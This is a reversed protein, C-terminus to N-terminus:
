VSLPAALFFPRAMTTLSHVRQMIDSFLSGTSNQLASLESKALLVGKSPDIGCRLPPVQEFYTAPM